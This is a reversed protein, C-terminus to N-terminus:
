RAGELAATAPVSEGRAPAAARRRAVMATLVALLLIVLGVAIATEFWFGFPFLQVLRESRPDFTYTGGAFFLRHFIEFLFDFAVLAVGGVVVVGLAVARAGRDVARWFARRGGDLRGARVWSTALAIASIAVVLAFGGFVGRVDAMHGRERPSFVPEGRVEVDFAPPGLVLDVLIAGTAADLEARSYGTLEPAGARVQEFGVWVPNLFPVIALGVLVIGTAAAVLLTFGRGFRDIV